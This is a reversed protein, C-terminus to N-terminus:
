LCFTLWRDLLDRVCWRRAHTGEVVLQFNHPAEIGSIVCRLQVPFPAAVLLALMHDVELKKSGFWVIIWHVVQSKISYEFFVMAQLLM